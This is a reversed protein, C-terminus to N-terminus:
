MFVSNTRTLIPVFNFTGGNKCQNFPLTIIVCVISLKKKKLVSDGITGVKSVLFLVVLIRVTSSVSVCECEVM